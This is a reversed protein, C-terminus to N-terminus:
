EDILLPCPCLIDTSLLVSTFGLPGLGISSTSMPTAPHELIPITRM